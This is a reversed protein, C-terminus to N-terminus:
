PTKRNHCCDQLNAKRDNILFALKKLLIPKKFTLICIENEWRITSIYSEELSIHRFNTVNYDMKDTVANVKYDCTNPLKRIDMICM